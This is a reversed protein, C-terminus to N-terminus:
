DEPPPQTKWRKHIWTWQDPHARIIGELITTYRQTHARLTAEDRDPPPDLPALIRLRHRGDPQRVMYAPLVPTGSAASLYALGPTTCAPRGFFEVFLGRHRRMNQDLILAVVERRRLAKLCDRVSDDRPLLRLGMRERSARWYTNLATHGLDKVVVNLPSWIGAAALGMLEWNGIHGMLVLAGGGHARVTEVHELGEVDVLKGFDAAHRGSFYLCEFLMIGFHRYMGDAIRVRERANLQPLCQRLTELVLRRRYRIVRGTMWGLGAGLRLVARHSLFGVIASVARIVATSVSAM